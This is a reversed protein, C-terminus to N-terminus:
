GGVMTYNNVYGNGHHNNTVLLIGWKITVQRNGTINCLSM